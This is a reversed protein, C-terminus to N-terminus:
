DMYRNIRSEYSQESNQPQYQPIEDTENDGPFVIDRVNSITNLDNQSFSNFSMSLSDMIRNNDINRQLTALEDKVMKLGIFTESAIVYFNTNSSGLADNLQSIMKQMGNFPNRGNLAAKRKQMKKSADHNLRAIEAANYKRGLHELTQQMQQYANNVSRSMKPLNQALQNNLAMFADQLQEKLIPCNASPVSNKCQHKYVVSLQDMSQMMKNMDQQMQTAAKGVAKFSARVSTPILNIQPAALVASSTFSALLALLFIILLLNNTKNM